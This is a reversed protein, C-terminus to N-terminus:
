FPPSSPWPRSRLIRPATLPEAQAGDQPPAAAAGVPEVPIGGVPQQEAGEPEAPARVDAVSPADPGSAPEKEEM